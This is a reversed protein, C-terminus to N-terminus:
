LDWGVAQESEVARQNSSAFFRALAPSPIFDLKTVRVPYADVLAVAPDLGRQVPIGHRHNRVM